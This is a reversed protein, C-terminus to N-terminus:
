RMMPFDKAARASPTTCVAWISVSRKKDVRIDSLAIKEDANTDGSRKIGMNAMDGINEIRTYESNLQDHSYHIMLKLINVIYTKSHSDITM